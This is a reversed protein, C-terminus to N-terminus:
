FMRLTLTRSRYEDRTNLNPRNEKICLAELTLLFQDSRTTSCLVKVDDDTPETGVCDDFHAGVPTNVNRHEALRTKLHRVTQGVYSSECGPCTIKYVVRSRLITPVSPKLSPMVTKMKRLTLVTKVSIPLKSLRRVLNDTDRGRYQVALLYLQESEAQENAATTTQVAKSNMIIKEVTASIIGDYFEPPYQNRELISKARLISETFAEWTSCARYIRHVLGQVVARKYKKPSQAHFNMVLGTDTPKTYWTTHASEGTHVICLDLFPLRGDNEREITFKLQPHLSNIRELQATIMEKKTVTVIDDMYREYVSADGQIVPDFKSLWINALYPAPPSGMALGDVQKYHGHHTSMIVNMSSLELLEIFTKKDIPPQEIDGDYLLDAALEISEKLPVNTYLASVDFSVVEEDDALKLSKIKESVQKASSNIQAEPIRALWEAVQLAVKHYASGPMSLVPRLPIDAKHVKALGYLRPPQSGRPRMKNFLEDNIKGETKLSSLSAQIREEEKLTIDKANKRTTTIEEFQPLNLITKIKEEYETTKMLCFGTGKDFPVARLDHKKLFLKTLKLNRSPRQNKCIKIYRVVAMNIENITDNDVKNRRCRNLLLDLEALLDHHNFRDLVANRPGLALTDMVYRPPTIDLNHVKVTDHVNFLPRQQEDSLNTIKREHRKIIERRTTHLIFRANFIISSIYVGPVTTRIERCM